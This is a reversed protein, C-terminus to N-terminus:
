ILWMPLFLFWTCQISLASAAFRRWYNCKHKSVIWNWVVMKVDTEKQGPEWLSVCLTRDPGFWANPRLRSSRRRHSPGPSDGKLKVATKYWLVLELADTPKTRQIDEVRGAAGCRWLLPAAEEIICRRRGSEQKKGELAKRKGNSASVWEEGPLHKHNQTNKKRRIKPLM